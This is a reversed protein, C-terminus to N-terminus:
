QVRVSQAGQVAKGMGGFLFGGGDCDAAGVDDDVLDQFEHTKGPSELEDISPSVTSVRWWLSRREQPSVTKRCRSRSPMGSLTALTQMKSPSSESSSKRGKM